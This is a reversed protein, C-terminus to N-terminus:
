ESRERPYPLSMIEHDLRYGDKERFYKSGFARLMFLLTLPLWFMFIVALIDSSMIVYLMEWEQEFHCKVTVDFDDDDLWFLVPGCTKSVPLIFERFDRVSYRVIISTLPIAINLLIVLLYAKYGHWMWSRLKHNIKEMDGATHKFVVMREYYKALPLGLRRCSYYALKDLWIKLFFLTFFACIMELTFLLFIVWNHSKYETSCIVEIHHDLDRKETGTLLQQAVSTQDRCTFGLFGVFLLISIILLIKCILFSNTIKQHLLVQFHLEVTLPELAKEVVSAMRSGVLRGGGM